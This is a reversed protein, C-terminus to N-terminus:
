VWAGRHLVRVVDLSVADLVVVDARRGAELVGIDPIRLARAPNTATQAVARLLDDDSSAGHAAARFARDLTTTSGALAGTGAVRAVGDTVTIDVSGLRHAGDPSGTAAVADSVAVLREPAVTADLWRCLDPDLHHGDRILELTADSDLLALVAGPTRHHLPPMANFLHTAHTAGVGLAERVREADAATHGVAAVAGAGVVARIADDAGPLEPALTVMRVVGPRVLLEVDNPEPAVLAAPDHAGCYATSIWPGELHVGALEGSEVLGALADVSRRLEAVPASVLSALLTTTGSARHTEVVRGADALDSGFSAGGGGHCHADVFGPVLVVAGLVHTAPAPPAGEGLAAIRDGRVSVWGPRLVRDHAVVADATLLADM